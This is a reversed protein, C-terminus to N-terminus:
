GRHWRMGLNQNKHEQLVLAVLKNLEVDNLKKLRVTLDQYIIDPTSGLEAAIENITYNRFLLELVKQLRFLINPDNFVNVSTKEKIIEQVLEYKDPAIEKLENSNLFKSVTVYSIQIGLSQFYEATRRTSANNIIVYDAVDKILQLYQEGTYVDSIKKAM